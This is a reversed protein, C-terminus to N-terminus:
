YGDLCEITVTFIENAAPNYTGRAELLGYITTGANLRLRLESGAPASGFGAAGDTFAFFAAVDINGLYNAAKSSSWAANDGNAVVPLAEYLHLRFTAAATTVSDKAIRIRQIITQGQGTRWVGFSMPTVSGATTSNAVLDGSAYNTTDNPRTFTAVSTSILM